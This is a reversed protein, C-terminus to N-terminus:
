RALADTPIRSRHSPSVETQDIRRPLLRSFVRDFLAIRNNTLRAIIDLVTAVLM